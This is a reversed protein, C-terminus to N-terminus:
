PFPCEVVLLSGVWSCGSPVNNSPCATTSGSSVFNALVCACTYTAACQCSSPTSRTVCTGSNNMHLRFNAPVDANGCSSSAVHGGDFMCTGSDPASTDSSSADRLEADPMSASDTQESSADPGGGGDGDDVDPEVDAGSDAVVLADISTFEAGGCGILACAFLVMIKM